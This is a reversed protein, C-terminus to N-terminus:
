CHAAAYKCKGGRWCRGEVNWQHCTGGSSGAAKTVHSAKWRCNEGFSCSSSDRWQWCSKDPGSALANIMAAGQSVHGSKFKCDEGFRCKGTTNWLRCVNSGQRSGRTQESPVEVVSLGQVPPSEHKFRCGGKAQFLCPVGAAEFKCIGKKMAEDVRQAFGNVVNRPSALMKDAPAPAPTVYGPAANAANLQAQM